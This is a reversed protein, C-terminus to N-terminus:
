GILAPVCVSITFDSNATLCIEHITVMEAKETVYSVCAPYLVIFPVHMSSDLCTTASEQNLCQM